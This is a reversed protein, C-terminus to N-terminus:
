IIRNKEILEESDAFDYVSSNIIPIDNYKELIISKIRLLIDKQEENSYDKSIKKLPIGIAILNDELSIEDSTQLEDLYYSFRHEDDNYIIKGWEQPSMFDKDFLTINEPYILNINNNKLVLTPKNFIFDDFSSKYIDIMHSDFLSKQCLSIYKTGNFINNKDTVLGEEIKCRPLIYGSKLIKFLLNYNNWKLGHYLFPEM